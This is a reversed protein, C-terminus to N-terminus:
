STRAPESAVRETLDEIRRLLALADARVHELSAEIASPEPVGSIQEPSATPVEAGGRVQFVAHAEEWKEHKITGYLVPVMAILVALAFLPLCWYIPDM